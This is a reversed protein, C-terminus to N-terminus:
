IGLLLYQVIQTCVLLLNSELLWILVFLLFLVNSLGIIILIEFVQIHKLINITSKILIPILILYQISYIIIRLQFIVLQRLNANRINFLICSFRSFIVKSLFQILFHISNFIYIICKFWLLLQLLFQITSSILIITRILIHLIIIIIKLAIQICSITIKLLILIILLLFLFFIWMIFDIINFIASITLIKYIILRTSPYLFFITLIIILIQIIM